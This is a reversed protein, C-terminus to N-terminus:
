AEELPFRIELYDRDIVFGVAGQRGEKGLRVLFSRLDEANEELAPETTYCQVIVPADFILQGGRADDRWVGRGQPFATAGGFLRGLLTLSETVWYEQEIPQDDRDVSPVFLVLVTSASKQAQLVEPWNPM